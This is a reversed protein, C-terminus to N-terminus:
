CVQSQGGLLTNETTQRTKAAARKVGRGPGMPAPVTAPPSGEWQIPGQPVRLEELPVQFRATSPLPTVRCSVSGAWFDTSLVSARTRKLLPRM